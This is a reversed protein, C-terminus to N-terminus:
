SYLCVCNDTILKIEMDFLVHILVSANLESQRQLKPTDAPRKKPESSSCSKATQFSKRSQNFTTTKFPTTNAAPSPESKVSPTYLMSQQTSLMPSPPPPMSTQRMIPSPHQSSLHISQMSTVIESSTTSFPTELAATTKKIKSRTRPPGQPFARKSQTSQQDASVGKM